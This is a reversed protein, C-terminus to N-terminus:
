DQNSPTQGVARLYGRPKTEEVLNMFDKRLDGLVDTEQKGLANMLHGGFRNVIQLRMQPTGTELIEYAEEVMRAALRYLADKLAEESNM